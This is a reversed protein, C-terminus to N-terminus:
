FDIAFPVFAGFDSCISEENPEKEISFMIFTKFPESVQRRILFENGEIHWLQYTEASIPPFLTNLRMASLPKHCKQQWSTCRGSGM